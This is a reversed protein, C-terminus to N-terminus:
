PPGDKELYNWGVQVVFGRTDLHDVLGEMQPNPIGRMWDKYNAQANGASPVDTDNKFVDDPRQAPWWGQIGGTAHAYKKCSKFDAQWPHAMQQSFLGPWIPLNQNGLGHGYPVTRPIRNGGVHRFDGTKPDREWPEIRFGSRCNVSDPNTQSYVAPNRSLWSVEIGPYFAGGVCNELAAQDLGEPTADAEPDKPLPPIIPWGDPDFNGKLWQIMLAYQVSTLALYEKPNGPSSAARLAEHGEEDGFLKPMNQEAPTAAIDTDTPRTMGEPTRLRKFVQARAAKGAPGPTALKGMDWYALGISPDFSGHVYAAIDTVWRYGRLRQLLPYIEKVFSPKYATLGIKEKWDNKLLVLRRLGRNRAYDADEDFIANDDPLKVHRVMVDILSDWLTVLNGIPPAFDPPGVLVWAAEIQEVPVKKKSYQIEAMVWGDSIDDFWTPNNSFSKLTPWYPSSTHPLTTSYKSLGKGGLVLLRGRSDTRLEGLYDIPVGPKSKKIEQPGAGAGHISVPDPDIDLKASRAAGSATIDPNRLKPVFTAATDSYPSMEGNTGHFEFFSAKRNALQVTWTIKVVDKSLLNIEEKPVYMAKTTDWVYKWIRFRAAQRKIKGGSKFSPVITGTGAVGTAGVGPLEPGIFFDAGSGLRAVGIAPHIKYVVDAALTNKHRRTVAVDHEKGM